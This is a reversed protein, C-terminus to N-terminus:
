AKKEFDIISPSKNLIQDPQRGMDRTELVIIQDNLDLPQDYSLSDIDISLGYVRYQHYKLFCNTGPGPRFVFIQM